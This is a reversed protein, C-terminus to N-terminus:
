WADGFRVFSLFFQWPNFILFEGGGKEMVCYVISKHTKISIEDNKEETKVRM